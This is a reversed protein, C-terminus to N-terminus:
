VSRLFMNSLAITPKIYPWRRLRHVLMLGLVVQHTTNPTKPKSQKIAPENPGITARFDSTSPELGPRTPDTDHLNHM